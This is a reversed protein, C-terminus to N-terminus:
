NITHRKKNLWKLFDIYVDKSDMNNRRDVNVNGFKMMNTLEMM